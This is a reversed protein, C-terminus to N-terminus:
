LHGCGFCSLFFGLALALAFFSSSSLAVELLDLLDLLLPVCFAIMLAVWANVLLIAVITGWAVSRNEIGFTM